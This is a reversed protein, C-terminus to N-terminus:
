EKVTGSTISCRKGGDKVKDCEVIKVEEPAAEPKSEGGGFLGSLFGGAAADEAEEAMVQADLAKQRDERRAADEARRAAIDALYIERQADDLASVVVVVPVDGLGETKDVVSANMAKVHLTQFFPVLEEDSMRRTALVQLHIQAGVNALFYRGRFGEPLLDETVDLGRVTMFETGRYQASRAQLDLRRQTSEKSSFLSNPYRVAKILVRRDGKEYALLVTEASRGDDGVALDAVYKLADKAAKKRNKPLFPEVDEAVTPRVTWGEPPKPLMDALKTPLGSSGSGGVLGAIRDTFGNLYEDFTQGKGDEGGTKRANLNYDVAMFGGVGLGLLVLFGLLRFV